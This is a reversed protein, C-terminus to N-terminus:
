NNKNQLYYNLSALSLNANNNKSLTIEMYIDSFVKKYAELVENTMKKKAMERFGKEKIVKPSLNKQVRETYESIIRFDKSNNLYMTFLVIYISPTHDISLDKFSIGKNKIKKLEGNIERYYLYDEEGNTHFIKVEGNTCFSIRDIENITLFDKPSKYFRIESIAEEIGDKGQHELFPLVLIQKEGFQFVRRQTRLRSKLIKKIDNM